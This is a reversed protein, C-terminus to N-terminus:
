GDVVSLGKVEKTVTKVFSGGSGRTVTYTYSQWDGGEKGWSADSMVDITDEAEEGNEGEGRDGTRLGPGKLLTKGEHGVDESSRPDNAGVRM